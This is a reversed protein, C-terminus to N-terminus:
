REGGIVSDIRMKNLTRLPSIIILVGYGVVFLAFQLIMQLDRGIKIVVISFILSLVASLVLTIFVQLVVTMSIDTMSAGALMHVAYYKKSRLINANLGMIIGVAAFIIITVSLVIYGIVSQMKQYYLLTIKNTMSEFKVDFLGTANLNDAIEAQSLEYNDFNYIGMTTFLMEFFKTKSPENIDGSDFVIKSLFPNIPILIRYDMVSSSFGNMIGQSSTNNNLFGIVKFSMGDQQFEENLDYYQELESGMIIPIPQRSGTFDEEDFFIGSSLQYTNFETANENILVATVGGIFRNDNLVRDLNVEMEMHLLVDYENSNIVEDYLNALPKSDNDIESRQELVEYSLNNRIEIMDGQNMFRQTDMMFEQMDMMLSISVILLVFAIVSQVLLIVYEKPHILVRRIAFKLNRM